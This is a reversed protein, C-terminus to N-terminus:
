RLIVVRTALKLGQAHMRLFYVGSSLGAAQWWFSHHGAQQEEDIIIRVLKGQVDYLALRVHGARPLEYSITTGSKFPNPDCPFLM